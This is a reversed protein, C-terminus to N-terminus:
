LQLLSSKWEVWFGWNLAEIKARGLLFGRCVIHILIQFDNETLFVEKIFECNFLNLTVTARPRIFLLSCVKWIRNLGHDLKQQIYNKNYAAEASPEDHGTASPHMAPDYQEHWKYIQHYSLMFYWLTQFFPLVSMPYWTPRFWALCHPCCAFFFVVAGPGLNLVLSNYCPKFISKKTQITWVAHLPSPKTKNEWCLM